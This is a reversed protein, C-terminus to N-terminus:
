RIHCHHCFITYLLRGDPYKVRTEASQCDKAVDPTYQRLIVVQKHAIVCPSRIARTGAFQDILKGQLGHLVQEFLTTVQDDQGAVRGRGLGQAGDLLLIEGGEGGVAADQADHTGRHLFNALQGASAVDAHEACRAGNGAAAIVDLNFPHVGVKLNVAM